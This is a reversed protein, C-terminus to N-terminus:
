KDDRKLCQDYYHHCSDVAAQIKWAPIVYSLGSHERRIGVIKGDISSILKEQSPVYAEILGMFVNFEEKEVGKGKENFQFGFPSTFVPSGSNGGFATAEILFKKPRKTVNEFNVYSVVGLRLVPHMVRGSGLGLPFGLYHIYNGEYYEDVKAFLKTSFGGIDEQKWQGYIQFVALDNDQDLYTGYCKRECLEKLPIFLPKQEWTSIRFFIDDVKIGKIVHYCTALFNLFKQHDVPKSVLMGTGLPITDKRVVVTDKEVISDTKVYEISAILCPSIGYYRPSKKEGNAAGILFCIGLIFVLWKRM